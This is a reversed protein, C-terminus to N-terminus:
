ASRRKRVQERMRSRALAVDRFLSSLRADDTAHNLLDVERAGTFVLANIQETQRDRRVIALYTAQPQSNSLHTKAFLAIEGSNARRLRYRRLANAKLRFWAVDSLETETEV